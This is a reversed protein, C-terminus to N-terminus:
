MSRTLADGGILENPHGVFCILVSCRGHGLRLGGKTMAIKCGSPFVRVGKCGVDGRKNRRRHHVIDGVHTGLRILRFPGPLCSSTKLRLKLMGSRVSSGTSLVVIGRQGRVRGLGRLLSLNDNSPLVVSLLVYSCSCSRVGRLTAHCSTTVRIICHRGRLSHRAIRHLGTSSRMLLVGVLKM